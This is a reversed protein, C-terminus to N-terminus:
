ADACACETTAQSCVIVHSVASAAAAAAAAAVRLLLMAHLGSRTLWALPSRRQWIRAKMRRAAQLGNTLMAAVYYDRGMNTDLYRVFFVWGSVVMSM